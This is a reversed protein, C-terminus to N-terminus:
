GSHAMQCHGRCAPSALVCVIAVGVRGSHAGGPGSITSNIVFFRDRGRNPFQPTLSPRVEWQDIRLCYKEAACNERVVGEDAANTLPGTTHRYSRILAVPLGVEGRMSEHRKAAPMPLDDVECLRL